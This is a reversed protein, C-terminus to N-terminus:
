ANDISLQSRFNLKKERSWKIVLNRNAVNRGKSSNLPRHSGVLCFTSSVFYYGFYYLFRPFILRFHWLVLLNNKHLFDTLFNFLTIVSLYYACNQFFSRRIIFRCIQTEIYNNYRFYLYYNILHINLWM